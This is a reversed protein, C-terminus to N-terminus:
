KFIIIAAIIGSGVVYSYKYINKWIKERRAKKEEAKLQEQTSLLLVNYNDTIQDYRDLKERLISDMTQYHTIELQSLSDRVQLKRIVLNKAAGSENLLHIEKKLYNQKYKLIEIKERIALMHYYEFTWTTDLKNYYIEGSNQSFLNTSVFLFLILIYKMYTNNM